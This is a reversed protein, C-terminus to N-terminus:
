DELNGIELHSDQYEQKEFLNLNIEPLLALLKLEEQMIQKGTVKKKIM